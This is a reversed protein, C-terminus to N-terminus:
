KLSEKLVEFLLKCIPKAEFEAEPRYHVDFSFSPLFVPLRLLIGFDLEKKVACLPLVGVLTESACVMTKVAELSSSFVSTRAIIDPSLMKEYQNWVAFKSSINIGALTSFPKNLGNDLAAPALLRNSPSVVVSAEMIGALHKEREFDMTDPSPSASIEVDADKILNRGKEPEPDPEYSILTFSIEPRASNIISLCDPLIYSASVNDALLEVSAGQATKGKEGFMMGASDYWYIIKEAYTKLSRGEASLKLEGGGRDFLKAGTEKELASINQSVAPQSVGLSKAAITFSGSQAVRLFVRLKFDDLM